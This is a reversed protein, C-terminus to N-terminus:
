LNGRIVRRRLIVLYLLVFYFLYLEEIESGRVLISEGSLAEAIKDSLNVGLALVATVGLIAPPYIINFRAPLINPKFRQLAPIVLGGVVSGILLILRPKQDFWSSTNHLNTEGQDNIHTWYEPTSWQLFHQGWSVEEGAIYLCCLAALGVWAILFKQKTYSLKFLINVAVFFGALVFLFQTFEHPGEESLLLSLSQGSIFIEFFIQVIMFIVPIWLWYLSSLNKTMLVM